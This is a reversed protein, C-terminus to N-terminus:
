GADTQRPTNSALIEAVKAPSTVLTQTEKSDAGTHPPGPILTASAKWAKIIGDAQAETRNGVDMLPRGIWPIRTALKSAAHPSAAIATFVAQLEFANMGAFLAPPEWTTAAGMADGEPYIGAGNLLEVTELKFWVAKDLPVAYNEKTGSIRLHRFAEKSPIGLQGAEEATMKQFIRCSRFNARLMIAGMLDDPDGVAGKRLHHLVLVAVNAAHAVRSMEAAVAAIAVNNNGSELAHANNFPDVLLLVFGGAKLQSAISNTDPFIIGDTSSQAFVIRGGRKVVFRVSKMVAEYNLGHKLCAAAFRRQWEEIGDEYTVIAVDGKRWVQEGLIPKGTIFALMIAIAIYGKGTGDMAGIVAASGFLLFRGYAWQRPPIQHIPRITPEIFQVDDPPPHEAEWGPPPENEPRGPPQQPQPATGGTGGGSGGTGNGTHPLPKSDAEGNGTQSKTGNRWGLTVPDIGLRECLWHGAATPDPAGAHQMVLDLATLGREEGFDRIGDPHISIDEELDPRGRDKSAIRWAGTGPQYVANPFTAKVWSGPDRIAAENVKDFFSTAARKKGPKPAPTKEVGGNASFLNHAFDIIDQAQKETVAPLDALPIRSPSGGHWTYPKGTDPHIGNSVFQQGEALVEVKVETGDPMIFTETSVKRFPNDSRFVLLTKPALGTRMLPTPGLRNEIERIIHETLARIRVDVDIGVANGTVIGTGLAEPIPSYTTCQPPDLLANARWDNGWPRKDATYIPCPRYGNSWYRRRLALVQRPDPKRTASM